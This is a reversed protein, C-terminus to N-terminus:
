IRILKYKIEFKNLNVIIRNWILKLFHFFFFVFFNQSHFFFDIYKKLM